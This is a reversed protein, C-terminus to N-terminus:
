RAETAKLSSGPWSCRPGLATSMCGDVSVCRVCLASTESQLVPSNFPPTVRKSATTLRHSEPRVQARASACMTSNQSVAAHSDGRVRALTHTWPPALELKVLGAQIGGRWLRLGSPSTSSSTTTLDVRPQRIRGVVSRINRSGSRKVYKMPARKGKPCSSVPREREGQGACRPEGLRV